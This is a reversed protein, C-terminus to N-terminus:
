ILTLPSDVIKPRANHMIKTAIPQPWEDMLYQCAKYIFSLAFRERGWESFSCWWLTFSNQTQLDPLELTIQNNSYM